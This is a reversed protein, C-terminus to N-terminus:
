LGSKQCRRKEIAKATKVVCWKATCDDGPALTPCDNAIITEGDKTDCICYNDPKPEPNPGPVACLASQTGRFMPDGPFCVNDVYMCRANKDDLLRTCDYPVVGPDNESNCVTSDPRENLVTTSECYDGASRHSQTCAKDEFKSIAVCGAVRPEDGKDVIEKHPLVDLPEETDTDTDAADVELENADLPEVPGPDVDMEIATSITELQPDGGGCALFVLAALITVRM